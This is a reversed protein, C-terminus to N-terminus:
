SSADERRYRSDRRDFAIVADLDHAPRIPIAIDMTM